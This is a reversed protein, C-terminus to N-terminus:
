GAQQPTVRHPLSHSLSSDGGVGQTVGRGGAPGAGGRCGAQGDEEEEEKLMMGQELFFKIDQM